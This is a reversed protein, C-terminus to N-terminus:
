KVEGRARWEDTLEGAFGWNEDLIESIVVHTYEPKKGLVRVLTDTVERVLTRKQEVTAGTTMLINVIPM